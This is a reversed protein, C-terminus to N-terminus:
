RATKLAKDLADRLNKGVDQLESVYSKALGVAEVRSEGTAHTVMGDLMRDLANAKELIEDIGDILGHTITAM